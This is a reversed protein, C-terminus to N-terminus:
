QEGSTAPWNRHNAPPRHKRAEKVVQGITM